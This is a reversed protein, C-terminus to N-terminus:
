EGNKRALHNALRVEAQERTVPGNIGYRDKEVYLRADDWLCVVLDAYEWARFTGHPRDRVVTGDNMLMLAITVERDRINQM